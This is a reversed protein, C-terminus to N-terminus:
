KKGHLRDWLANVAQMAQKDGGRDPHWLKVLHLFYRRGLAVDKRFIAELEVLGDRLERSLQVERNVEGRAFEGPLKKGLYRKRTRGGEWWYAYWYPGHPCSRCAEKGCRVWERRLSYKM